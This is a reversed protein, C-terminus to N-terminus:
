TRDSCSPSAAADARTKGREVYPVHLIAGVLSSLSTRDGHNRRELSGKSASWCTPTTGTM